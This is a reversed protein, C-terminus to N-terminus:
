KELESLYLKQAIEEFLESVGLDEKASVEFPGHAGISNAFEEGEQSSIEQREILDM